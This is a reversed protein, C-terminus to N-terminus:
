SAGKSCPNKFNWIDQLFCWLKVLKLDVVWEPIVNVIESVEIGAGRWTQLYQPDGYFNFSYGNVIVSMRKKSMM